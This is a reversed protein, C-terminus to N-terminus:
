ETKQNSTLPLVTDLGTLQLTEQVVISLPSFFITKQQLEMSKRAAVLIQLAATDIADVHAMDVRIESLDSNVLDLLSEKLRDVHHVYVEGSLSLGTSTM